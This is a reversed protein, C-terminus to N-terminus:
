MPLQRVLKGFTMFTTEFQAYLTPDMSSQVSQLQTLSEVANKLITKNFQSYYAIRKQDTITDSTETNLATILTSINDMHFTLNEYLTAVYAQNEQGALAHKLTQLVSAAQTCLTRM